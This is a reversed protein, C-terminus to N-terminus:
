ANRAPLNSPFPNPLLANVVTINPEGDIAPPMYSLTASYQSGLMSSPCCVHPHIADTQIHKVSLSGIQSCLHLQNRRFFKHYWGGKEKGTSICYFGHAGLEREFSPISYGPFFKLLCTSSFLKDQWVFFCTGSHDWSAVDASCEQLMMHLVLPFNFPKICPKPQTVKQPLNEHSYPMKYFDPTAAYPSDSLVARLTPDRRKMRKCLTPQGRLFLPHFYGGKDNGWAVRTFDYL